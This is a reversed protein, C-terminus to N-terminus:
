DGQVFVAPPPDAPTTLADPGGQREHGILGIVALCAAAGLLGEFLASTVASRPPATPAPSLPRPHRPRGRRRGGATRHHRQLTPGM